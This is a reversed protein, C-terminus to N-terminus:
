LGLGRCIVILTNLVIKTDCVFGVNEIYKLDVNVKERTADLGEAYGLRIQALGSIGPRIVHRDCYNEISDCFILAHEYYDPRPGILSMDGKIVNIIQPLEDVRSKRLINGLKTIRNKELPDNYKRYIEDAPKMTRFKIAKFPLCNLGMRKQIFFIPGPNYTNNLILVLLTVLAMVPLLALSAFIDFVRKFLWFIKGGSVKQTNIKNKNKNKM